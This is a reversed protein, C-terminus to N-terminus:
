YYFIYFIIIYVNNIETNEFSRYLDYVILVFLYCIFSALIIIICFVEFLINLYIYQKFSVCYNIINKLYIKLGNLLYIIFDIM